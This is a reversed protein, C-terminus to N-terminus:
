SGQACWRQCAQMHWAQGDDIVSLCYDEYVLTYKTVYSEPDTGEFLMKEERPVERPSLQRRTPPQRKSSIHLPESSPEYKLSVSKQIM